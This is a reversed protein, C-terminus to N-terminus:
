GRGLRRRLLLLGAGLALLVAGALAYAGGAPGTRPLQGPEEAPTTPTPTATSGAPPATTAGAGAGGTLRLTVSTDKNTYRDVPALYLRVTREDGGVALRVRFTDTGGAGLTGLRLLECGAGAMRGSDSCAPAAVRVGDPTSVNLAYGGVAFSGTNTVRVTVTAAGGDVAGATARLRLSTRDPWNIRFDHPRGTAGSGDRGAVSGWAVVGFVPERATSTLTLRHTRRGGAALEAGGCVFTRASGAVPDCDGGSTLGVGSPLRLVFFGKAAAAGENSVTVEVPGSPRWPDGGLFAIDGRASIDPTAAPTAATASAVPAPASAAAASTGVAPQFLLAAAATAVAAVTGTRFLRMM